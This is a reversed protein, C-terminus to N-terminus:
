AFRPRTDTMAYLTLPDVPDLVIELTTDFTQVSRWSTGADESRYLKLEALAFVIRADAPSPKLNLRSPRQRRRGHAGMTALDHGGSPGTSASVRSAFARHRRNRRLVLGLDAGPVLRGFGGTTPSRAQSTVLEWTRGGDSSRRVESDWSGLTHSSRGKFAYLLQPDKPSATVTVDGTGLEPIPAWTFAAIPARRAMEGLRKAVIVYRQGRTMAFTHVDRAGADFWQSTAAFGPGSAAFCHPSSPSAHALRDM